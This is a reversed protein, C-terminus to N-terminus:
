LGPTHPVEYYGHKAIRKALHKNALIGAQLLGNIGMRIEMYIFGNIAKERLNYQKFLHEPIIDIPMKMYEYRDLPTNLYFNKIDITMFKADKTSIVSNWLIKATTM